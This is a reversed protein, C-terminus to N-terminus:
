TQDPLLSRYLQALLGAERQPSYQALVHQQAQAAVTNRLTPNAALQRILCCLEKGDQFLWGTEGHCILSRNGPVDRAVVPKGMVMAELLANAMGGEFQSSNLVLDAAAYLAGMSQHPVEGLLKVWPLKAVQTRITAAYQYDLEGGAIWLQMLPLELALPTLQEIASDIGKVPRLAAPLLIAFSDTSKEAPITDHFPEVGQPIVHLKSSIQPFAQKALKAVLPDFCTAAAADHLAQRTETHDRLAPDFLDSGTLTILYPVGLQQATTRTLPGAHFAHFGHLLTPPTSILNQLRLSLDTADLSILDTQLGHMQLHRAIRQVSTINGRTPGQSFPCFLAIRM